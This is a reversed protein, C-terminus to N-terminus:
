RRDGILIFASWYHPHEYPRNGHSDEYTRLWHKAEQLAQAKSMRRGVGVGRDGEYVGARNEYFRRMLLSTPEDEVKWLSVLLSRAGAQLFAHSFGIYGEGMVERGLGTECASLTVLDADLDWERVIEKARLLGDYIRTGAMAAELPDPLGVQSLVLASEEPREDDMLAHTAFHITNFEKLHGSEALDVLEQESAQPGVLVTADQYVAAIRSLERRSGALRRLSRLAEDSGRMASRLMEPDYGADGAALMMEEGGMAALHEDAFPPDGVLLARGTARSGRGKETLWTYITASPVYSVSYRDGVLEGAGDVLSEVPVGLMAGSPLVILDEAGELASMLPALREEWLGHADERGLEMFGPAEAIADRFARTREFPTEEDDRGSDIEVRAWRVPGSDRIVYGWSDYEGKKMEVDLWGVIAARASLAGQVRQLPFAQGETV